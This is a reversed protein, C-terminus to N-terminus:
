KLAERGAETIRCVQCDRGSLRSPKVGGTPEIFGARRLDSCRKWGGNGINAMACAEEDTLGMFYEAVAGAYKLLLRYRLSQPRLAAAAKKSTEPDTTRALGSTFDLQEITM